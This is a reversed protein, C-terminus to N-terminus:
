IDSELLKVAVVEETVEAIHCEYIRSLEKEVIKIFRESEIAIFMRNQSPVLVAGTAWRPQLVPKQNRDTQLDGDTFESFLQPEESEWIGLCERVQGNLNNFAESMHSAFTDAYVKEKHTCRKERYKLCTLMTIIRVDLRSLPMTSREVIYDDDGVPTYDSTSFDIENIWYSRRIAAVLRSYKLWPFRWIKSHKHYALIRFVSMSKERRKSRQFWTFAPQSKNENM